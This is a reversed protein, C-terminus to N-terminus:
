AKASAIAAEVKKIAKGIDFGYIKNKNDKIAECAKLLEDVIGGDEFANWRRVLEKAAEELMDEALITHTAKDRVIWDGCSEECFIEKVLEMIM